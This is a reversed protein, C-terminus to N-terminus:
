GMPKQRKKECSFLNLSNVNQKSYEDMMEMEKESLRYTTSENAHVMTLSLFLVMLISMCIYIKKKM